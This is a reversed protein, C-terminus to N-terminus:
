SRSRRPASTATQETRENRWTNYSLGGLAVALSILAVLNNRLQQRLSTM